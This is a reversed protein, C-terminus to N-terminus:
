WLGGRGGGMIKYGNEGVDDGVDKKKVWGDTM